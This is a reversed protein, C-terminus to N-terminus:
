KYWRPNLTTSPPTHYADRYLAAFRGPHAFGWRAAIRTVTSTRPDAALLDHHAAALRVRRLHALPTTDLHRRFAYQIARPTVSAAAAIQTLGIDQDAHAEIFAVARRVTEPTADAGDVRVPAPDSTLTTAFVALATHALLRTANAVLLTSAATAPSHLVSVVYSSVGRWLQATHADVPTPSLVQWPPGAREPPLAAAQALVPAPLSLTHGRVNESVSRFALGPGTVAAVDGARYRTTDGRAYFEVTGADFVEVTLADAPDVQVSLEPELGVRTSVLSGATVQELSVIPGRSGPGVMRLHPAQHYVQEIFERATDPETTKFVVPASM